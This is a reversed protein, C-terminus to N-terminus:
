ERYCAIRKKNTSEVTSTKRCFSTMKNLEIYISSRTRYCGLERVYWVDLFRVCWVRRKGASAVNNQGGFKMEIRWRYRERTYGSSTGFIVQSRQKGVFLIALLYIIFKEFIM